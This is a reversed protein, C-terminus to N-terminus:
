PGGGGEPDDAVLPLTLTFMSGREPGQRASTVGIRGGHAEVIERALFLGPGGDREFICAEVTPELGPGRDRVVLEAQDSRAGVSVDIAEDPPSYRLANGMLSVAVWGLKVPDAVVHIGGPLALRLAVGRERAQREIPESARRVLESLDVRVREVPGAYAGCLVTDLNREVIAALRGVEGVLTHVVEKQSEDLRGLVGDDLLGLGLALSTLPTRLAHALALKTEAERAGVSAPQPPAVTASSRRGPM